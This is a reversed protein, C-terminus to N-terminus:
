IVRKPGQDLEHSPVSATSANVLRLTSEDSAADSPATAAPADCSPAGPVAVAASSIAPMSWRGADAVCEPWEPKASPPATSLAAFPKSGLRITRSKSEPVVEFSASPRVSRSHVSTAASLSISIAGPTFYAAQVNLPRTGPGVSLHTSPSLSRMWKLLPLACGCVTWKWPM